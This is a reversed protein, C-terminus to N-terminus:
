GLANLVKQVKQVMAVTIRAPYFPGPVTGTRWGGREPSAHRGLPPPM